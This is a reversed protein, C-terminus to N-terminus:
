VAAVVAHEALDALLGPHEVLPESPPWHTSHEASPSQLSGVLLKQTALVQPPQWVAAAVAHEVLAALLGTHAALPVRLPWHTAQMISVSQLTAVVGIQSGLLAQTAHVASLWHAAL